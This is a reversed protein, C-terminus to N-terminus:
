YFNGVVQDVNCALQIEVRHETVRKLYLAPEVVSQWVVAVTDLVCDDKFVSLHLRNQDIGLSLCILPKSILKLVNLNEIHLGRAEEM